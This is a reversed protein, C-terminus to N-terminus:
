YLASPSSPSTRTQQLGDCILALFVGDLKDYHTGIRRFPKPENRNASIFRTLSRYEADARM